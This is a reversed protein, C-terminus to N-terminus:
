LRGRRRFFVLLGVTLGLMIALLWWFAASTGDCGVQLSRRSRLLCPLQRM